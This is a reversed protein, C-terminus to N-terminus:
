RTKQTVEIRNYRGPVEDTQKDSLIGLTSKSRYSEKVEPSSEDGSKGGLWRKWRTAQRPRDESTEPKNEMAGEDSVAGHSVDGLTM